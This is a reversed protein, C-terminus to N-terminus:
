ESEKPRFAYTLREIGVEQGNDIWGVKLLISYLQKEKEETVTLHWQYSRTQTEYTGQTEGTEPVESSFVNEKAEWLKQEAWTQVAVRNAFRGYVNLNMLNSETIVLTSLSLIAAAVMVEILSFGAKM